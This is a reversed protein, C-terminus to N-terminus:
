LPLSTFEGLFRKKEGDSPMILTNINLNKILRTHILMPEITLTEYDLTLHFRKNSKDSVSLSKPALSGRSIFPPLLTSNYISVSIYEMSTHLTYQESILPVLPLCASLELYRSCSMRFCFIEMAFTIPRTNGPLGRCPLYPERRHGFCGLSLYFGTDIHTSICISLMPISRGM